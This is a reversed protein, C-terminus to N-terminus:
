SSNFASFSFSVPSLCSKSARFACIDSSCECFNSSNFLSIKFSLFAIWDNVLLHLAKSSVNFSCYLAVFSCNIDSSRSRLSTISDFSDILSCNFADSCDHLSRVLWIWSRLSWFSENILAFSSCSASIFSICNAKSCFFISNSVRLSCSDSNAFSSWAFSSDMALLWVSVCCYSDNLASLSFTAPSFSSNSTWIWFIESCWSCLNSSNWLSIRLLLSVIWDKVLLHVSKSCCIIEISFSRLSNFFDFSDILSCSFADSSNHLWRLLWTWSRFSWFSENISVFSSCSTSIFLIFASNSLRLSSEIAIFCSNSSSSSFAL